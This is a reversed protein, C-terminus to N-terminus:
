HGRLLKQLKRVNPNEPSLQTAESIYYQAQDLESNLRHLDSLNILNGIHDRKQDFFNKELRSQNKIIESEAFHSQYIIYFSLAV